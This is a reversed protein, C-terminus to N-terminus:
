YYQDHIHDGTNWQHNCSPCQFYYFYGHITTDINKHVEEKCKICKIFYEDTLYLHKPESSDGITEITKEFFKQESENYKLFNLAPKLNNFFKIDLKDFYEELNSHIIFDNNAASFDKSNSTIFVARDYVDRNKEMFNIISFFILADSSENKSSNKNDKKETSFFPPMGALAFDVVLRDIVPSRDIAIGFNRIIRDLHKARQLYTYKYSRIALKHIKKLQGQLLDRELDDPIHNILGEHNSFEVNIEEIYKKIKNHKLQNWELLVQSPVILDAFLNFRFILNYFEENTYKGPELFDILVNTDLIIADKKGYDFM